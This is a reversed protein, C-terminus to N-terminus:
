EEGSGAFPNKMDPPAEPLEVVGGKEGSEMHRCIVHLAYLIITVGMLVIIIKEAM